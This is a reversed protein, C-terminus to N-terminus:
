VYSSCPVAFLADAACSSKSSLIRERRQGDIDDYLSDEKVRGRVMDAILCRNNIINLNNYFSQMPTCVVEGGYPHCDEGSFVKEFEFERGHFDVGVPHVIRFGMFECYLCRSAGTLVYPLNIFM